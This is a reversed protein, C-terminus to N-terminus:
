KDAKKYQLVKIKNKNNQIIIEEDGLYKEGDVTWNQNGKTTKLSSIKFKTVRNHKIANKLGFAFLGFVHFLGNRFGDNVIILDFTEDNHPRNKNINFGAISKSNSILVLPTKYTVGDYVFDFKKITFIKKIGNFIYALRGFKRKDKRPTDYASDVFIGFGAVYVYYKDNIMNVDYLYEEAELMRKAAKIPKRSLNLNSAMDNVTGFPIFGFTAKATNFDIANVVMNFTGDGGAFFVYDYEEAASKIKENFTEISSPAYIDIHGYKKALINKIKVILYHQKKKGSTPNYIFFSKM